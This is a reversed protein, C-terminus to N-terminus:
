VAVSRRRGEAALQKLKAGITQAQNAALDIRDSWGASNPEAAHRTGAVCKM